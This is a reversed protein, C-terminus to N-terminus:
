RNKKMEYRLLKMESTLESIKENLREIHEMFRKESVAGIHPRKEHAIVANNVHQRNARVETALYGLIFLNITVFLPTIWRFTEQNIKMQNFGFVM